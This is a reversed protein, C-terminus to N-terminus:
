RVTFHATNADRGDAVLLLFSAMDIPNAPLERRAPTSAQL